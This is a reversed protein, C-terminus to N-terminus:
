RDHSGMSGFSIPGSGAGEPESLSSGVRARGPPRERLAGQFPLLCRSGAGGPIGPRGAPVLRYGPTPSERMPWGFLRAYFRQLEASDEGTIEFQVISAHQM